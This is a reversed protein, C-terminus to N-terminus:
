KNWKLVYVIGAAIVSSLILILTIGFPKEYWCRNSKRGQIALLAMRVPKILTNPEKLGPLIFVLHKRTEEDETPSLSADYARAISNEVDTILESCINFTM